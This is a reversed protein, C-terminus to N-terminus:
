LWHQNFWPLRTSNLCKKKELRLKPHICGEILRFREQRDGGEQFRGERRRLLASQKEDTFVPLHNNFLGRNYVISSSSGMWISSLSVNRDTLGCLFCVTSFISLQSLLMYLM